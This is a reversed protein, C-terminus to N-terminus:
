SEEEGEEEDNAQNKLVKASLSKWNEQLENLKKDIGKMYKEYDLHTELIELGVKAERSKTWEEIKRENDEVYKVLDEALLEHEFLEKESYYFTDIEERQKIILEEQEEEDVEDSEYGGVLELLTHKQLRLLRKFKEKRKQVRKKREREKEKMKEVKEDVAEATPIMIGTSKMYCQLCVYEETKSCLVQCPEGHLYCLKAQALKEMISCLTKEEESKEDIDKRFIPWNHAEVSCKFCIISEKPV